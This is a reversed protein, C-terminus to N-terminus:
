GGARQQGLSSSVVDRCAEPQGKTLTPLCLGAPLSGPVLFLSASNLRKRWNRDWLINIETTISNPHMKFALLFSGQFNLLTLKCSLVGSAWSLQGIQRLNYPKNIASAPISVMFRSSVKLSSSEKPSVHLPKIM